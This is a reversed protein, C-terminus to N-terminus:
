AVAEVGMALALLQKVQALEALSELEDRETPSLDDNANRDLLRHLREAMRPSCHVLDAALKRPLTISVTEVAAPDATQTM